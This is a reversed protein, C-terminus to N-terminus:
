GIESLGFECKHLSIALFEEDLRTLSKEKEEEHKDTTGKGTIIIYDLFANKSTIGDLKTDM